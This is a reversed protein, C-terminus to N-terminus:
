RLWPGVDPHAPTTAQVPALRNLVDRPDLARKVGDDLPLRPTTSRRGQDIVVSMTHMAGGSAALRHWTAIDRDMAGAAHTPVMVRLGGSAPDYLMASQPFADLAAKVFPVADSLQTRARLLLVDTPTDRLTNQITDPTMVLPSQIGFALLQQLLATARAPNGTVRAWLQPEADPMFRLLMPLPARQAVVRPILDDLGGVSANPVQGMVVDDCIPRAHLRLSVETIVGLTGFAGTHLRVLDFGAVNKVVRGGVRTIDGTGTVVQLGLVLDRMTYDGYTLPGISATAVAAGVTCNADGYPALALMQGHESAIDNLEALTTGAHVTIVLDGPEYEVVGSLHRTHLPAAAAWPGGGGLWTGSGEIRLPAQTDRIQEALERTSTM